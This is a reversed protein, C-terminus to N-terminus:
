RPELVTERYLQRCYVCLLGATQVWASVPALRDPAKILVSARAATKALQNRERDTLNQTLEQFGQDITEQDIHLDLLRPEFHLEKTAGDRISEEFGYRSMYGNTDEKAGFNTFTNWVRVDITHFVVGWYPVQVGGDEGTGAAGRAQIRANTDLGSDLLVRLVPWLWAPSVRLQRWRVARNRLTRALRRAM